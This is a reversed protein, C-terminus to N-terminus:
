GVVTGEGSACLAENGTSNTQKGTGEDETESACRQQNRYLTRQPFAHPASEINRNWVCTRWGFTVTVKKRLFKKNIKRM